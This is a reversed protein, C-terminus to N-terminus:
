RTKSRCQGGELGKKLFHNMYRSGRMKKKTRTDQFLMNIIKGPMLAKTPPENRPVAQLEPIWWAGLLRGVKGLSGIVDGVLGGNPLPQFISFWRWPVTSFSIHYVYIYIIYIYITELLSGEWFNFMTWRFIITKWSLFTWAELTGNETRAATLSHSAIYIWFFVAINRNLFIAFPM